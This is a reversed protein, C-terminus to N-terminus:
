AIRLIFHGWLYSCIRVFCAEPGKLRHLDLVRDVGDRHLLSDVETQESPDVSQTGLEVLYGFNLM